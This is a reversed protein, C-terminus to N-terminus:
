EQYELVLIEYRPKSTERIVVEEDEEEMEEEDSSEYEVSLLDGKMSAPQMEQFVFSSSLIHCRM